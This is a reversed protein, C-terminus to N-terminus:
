DRIIKPSKKNKRRKIKEISIGDCKHKKIEKMVNESVYYHKNTENNQIRFVKNKNLDIKYIIKGNELTDFLSKDVIGNKISECNLSTQSKSEIFFLLIIIKIIHKM